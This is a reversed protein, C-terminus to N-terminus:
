CVGASRGPACSTTAADGRDAGAASDFRREGRLRELFGCACSAVTSTAERLRPPLGRDADGRGTEFTPRVGVNVAGRARRQRRRAYVGHGPCVVAADPVLNATPFGLERGRRDGRRRRRAAPIRRPLGACRGRRSGPCRQPFKAEPSLAYDVTVAAVGGAAALEACWVTMRTWPHWFGAAAMFGYWCRCCAPRARATCGACFAAGVPLFGCIKRNMEM